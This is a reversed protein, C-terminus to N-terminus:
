GKRLAPPTNKYIHNAIKWRRVYKKLLTVLAPPAIVHFPKWGMAKMRYYHQKYGDEYSKSLQKKKM